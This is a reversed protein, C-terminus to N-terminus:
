FSLLAVLRGGGDPTADFLDREFPSEFDGVNDLFFYYDFDTRFWLFCPKYENISWFPTRSYFYALNSISLALRSSNPPTEYFWFSLDGILFSLFSLLYLLLDLLLDGVLSSRLVAAYVAIELIFPCELFLRLFLLLLILDLPTFLWVM